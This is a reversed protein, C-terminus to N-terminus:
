SKQLPKLQIGKYIVYDGVGLTVLKKFEIKSSWDPTSENMGKPINYEHYTVHTAYSTHNYYGPPLDTSQEKGKWNSSMSSSSEFEDSSTVFGLNDSGNSRKINM